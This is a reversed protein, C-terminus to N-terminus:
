RTALCPMTSKVPDVTTPSGLHFGQGFECGLERLSALQVDSEIGEAV